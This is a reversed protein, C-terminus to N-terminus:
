AQLREPVASRRRTELWAILRDRRRLAPNEVVIRSLHALGCLLALCVLLGSADVIQSSRAGQLLREAVHGPWGSNHAALARLLRAPLDAKVYDNYLYLGYSVRGFWALPQWELARVLGSAQSGVVVVVLLGANLAAVVYFVQLAALHGASLILSAPAAVLVIGVSVWGVSGRMLGGRQLLRVVSAKHIALLAGLALLGFNVLSDIYIVYPAVGSVTLRGREVLSAAILTLCALTAHRSPVFLILPAFLIYFQEEVALSWFHAWTTLFASPDHQFYFNSLYAIYYALGPVDRGSLLYFPAVLIILAYYAPFIRLARKIWFRGLEQRVGSGGQEVLKRAHQLQGGILFGSLLFFLWVGSFGIESKEGWDTKHTFFVLMMAVGRLGDFGRIYM